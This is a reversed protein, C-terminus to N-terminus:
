LKTWTQLQDFRVYGNPDIPLSQGAASERGSFIICRLLTARRVAKISNQPMARIVGAHYRRVVVKGWKETEDARRCGGIRFISGNRFGVTCRLM